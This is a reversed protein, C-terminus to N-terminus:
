EKIKKLDAAKMDAYETAALERMFDLGWKSACIPGIGALISVPNVLGKGCCGCSSTRRAYKISEALPDAAVSQLAAVDAPTAENRALFKGDRLMGLYVDDENRKVYLAGKNRGTDPAKSITLTDARFIPRKIANDTATAFLAEIAALAVTPAAAAREAATAVKAAAREADRQAAKNMMSYAAAEQRETLSGYQDIADFMSRGFDSWEAAGKLFTYLDMHSSIYATRKAALNNRATEAGKQAAAKRKAVKGVGKCAACRGRGMWRGTGKCGFCMHLETSEGGNVVHAQAKVDLTKAKAVEYGNLDDSLLDDFVGM